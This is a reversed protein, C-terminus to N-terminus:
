DSASRFAAAAAGLLVADNGLVARTIVTQELGPVRVHDLFSSRCRELLLPYSLAVSGGVLFCDPDLLLAVDALVRGLADGAEDMIERAVVHGGLACQAVSRASWVGSGTPPAGLREHARAAIGWGASYAEVCGHGGCNCPLGPYSAKIHGINGAWYHRGAWVIGDIVVGGGIGTGVTVGVVARFPQGGGYVAEGLAFANGDNDIVVPLGTAAALTAGVPSGSWGPKTGTAFLVTGAQTDIQGASGVGIGRLQVDQGAASHQLELALAVVADLVVHDPTPQVRREFVKGRENVLAAALKTAGVDMAMVVPSGM